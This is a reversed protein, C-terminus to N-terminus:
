SFLRALSCCAGPPLHLISSILSAPSVLATICNETEAPSWLILPVDKRDSGEVFVNNDIQALQPDKLRDCLMSRQWVFLHPRMMGAM